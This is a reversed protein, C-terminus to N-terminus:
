ASEGERELVPGLGMAQRLFRAAHDLEGRAPAIVGGLTLFGHMQDPLHRHESGRVERKLRGALAITDDRLPDHGVSLILTPPLAGFDPHRAPSARWDGALAVDDLYLDRFWRLTSSTLPYGSSFEDMSATRRGMDGAPYFLALASPTAEDRLALAAVLALTAGASDGAVALGATEIGLGAVAEPVHRLAAVADEVAAPFPHEPALRYDVAVLIAGAQRALLRCTSDHTDLDGMVWGGGHLYVILPRPGIAAEPEYIRTRLPNGGAGITLDRARVDREPEFGARLSTARYGERAQQATGQELPPLAAARYQDVVGQAGPELPVRLEIAETM